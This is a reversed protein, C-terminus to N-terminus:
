KGYRLRAVAGAVCLVTYLLPTLLGVMVRPDSLTFLLLPFNIVIASLAIAAGVVLWTYRGRRRGTARTAIDGILGGAPFALIIVLLLFGIRAMVYGIPLSLGFAM